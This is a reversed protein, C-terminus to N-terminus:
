RSTRCHGDGVGIVIPYKQIGYFLEFMSQPITSHPNRFRDIVEDYPLFPNNLTVTVFNM